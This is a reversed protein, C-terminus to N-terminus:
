KKNRKRVWIPEKVKGEKKWILTKNKGAEKRGIKLAYKKTRAKVWIISRQPKDNYYTNWRIKWWFKDTKTWGKFEM